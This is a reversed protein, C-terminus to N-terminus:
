LDSVYLDYCSTVFRLTLVARLPLGCDNVNIHLKFGNWTETYGKANKKVGHDCVKPLKAIADQALQHRQVDLQKPESPPWPTEILM